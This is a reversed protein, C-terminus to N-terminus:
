NVDGLYIEGDGPLGNALATRLIKPYLNHRELDALSLWSVGVQGTDPIEGKRPERTTASM